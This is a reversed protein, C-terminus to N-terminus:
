RIKKYYEKDSYWQKLTNYFHEIEERIEGLGNKDLKQKKVLNLFTYFNDKEQEEKGTIMDLLLEIKTEFTEKKKNTIFSWFKM